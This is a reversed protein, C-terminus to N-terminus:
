LNDEYEKKLIKMNEEYGIRELRVIESAKIRVSARQGKGLKFARIRGDKIYRQITRISFKLIDAAEKMTLYETDM